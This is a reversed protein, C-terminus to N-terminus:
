LVTCICRNGLLCIDLYSIAEFSSTGSVLYHCTFLGTELVSYKRTTYWHLTKYRMSTSARKPSSLQSGISIVAALENLIDCVEYVIDDM